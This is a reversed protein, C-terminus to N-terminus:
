RVLKKIMPLHYSIKVLSYKDSFILIASGLPNQRFCTQKISVLIICGFIIIFLFFDDPYFILVQLQIQYLTYNYQWFLISIFNILIVSYCIYLCYIFQILFLFKFESFFLYMLIYFYLMFFTKRASCISYYPNSHLCFFNVLKRIQYRYLREQPSRVRSPKQKGSLRCSYFRSPSVFSVRMSFIVLSSEM